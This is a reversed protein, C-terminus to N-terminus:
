ICGECGMCEGCGTCEDCAMCGSCAISDGCGMCEGCNMIDGCSILYGCGMLDGCGICDGCGMLEGCSILDGRFPKPPHPEPPRRGPAGPAGSQVSAGRATPPAESTTTARPARGRGRGGDEAACRAQRARVPHARATAPARWRSRVDSRRQRNRETVEPRPVPADTVESPDRARHSEPRATEAPRGSQGAVARLLGWSPTSARRAAPCVHLSIRAPVHVHVCVRACRCTNDPCKSICTAKAHPTSCNSTNNANIETVM